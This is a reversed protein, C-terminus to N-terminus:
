NPLVRFSIRFTIRIWIWITYNYSIFCVGFQIDSLTLFNDFVKIYESKRKSLTDTPTPSVIISSLYAPYCGIDAVDSCCDKWFHCYQDCYCGNNSCTPSFFRVCCGTNSLNLALCSGLILM